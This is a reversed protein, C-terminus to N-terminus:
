VGSTYVSYGYLLHMGDSYLLLFFPLLITAHVSAHLPLRVWATTVVLVQTQGRPGSPCGHSSSIFVVFNQTM